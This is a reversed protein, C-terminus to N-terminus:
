RAYISLRSLDHFSVGSTSNFSGNVTSLVLLDLGTFTLVGGPPGSTIGDVAILGLKTTGGNSLDITPNGILSLSQFKFVAIPLHNADAFFVDDIGLATDFASTSGFAWLSFAGDDTVGRYITGFNTVGNTTIAPDTTIVTGSTILYPVPSTITTPPGFKSPTPTPPPPTPTPPPPTPTPPPPTPPPPTPPPPTPPPPTPPPPTPPPPTTPPPPPPPSVSASPSTQAVIAQNIVNVITLPNLPNQTTTAVLASALQNQEELAILNLVQIP